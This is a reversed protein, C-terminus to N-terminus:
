GYHVCTNPGEGVVQTSMFYTATLQHQSGQAPRLCLGRLLDKDLLQTVDIKTDHLMPEKAPRRLFSALVRPWPHSM